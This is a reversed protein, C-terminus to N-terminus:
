HSKTKLRNSVYHSIMKKLGQEMTYKQEWGFSKIISNDSIWNKTDFVRKVKDSEVLKIAKKTIKMIMGLIQHNSTQVGTGIAVSKGLIKQHNDMVKILGEVFDEVYIWDHYGETIPMDKGDLVNNIATPMLRWDAEGIGWVSAPRICVIPKHFKKFFRKSIKEGIYKADSYDTQVPLTVSSSSFYFLARYSINITDRLLKLYDFVNSKFIIQQDKQHYHNGYSATYFIYDADKIDIKDDHHLVTVEHHLEKIRKILYTSIFGQGIVTTKM